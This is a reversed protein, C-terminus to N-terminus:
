SRQEAALRRARVGRLPRHSQDVLSSGEGTSFILPVTRDDTAYLLLGSEFSRGPLEARYRMWSAGAKLQHRGGGPQWSFTDRIEAFDGASLRGARGLPRRDAPDRRPLLVRRARGLEGPVRVDSSGLQGRLENLRDDGAVWTHALFLTWADRDWRWGHSADRVGGVDYNTQRYREWALKATGSASATFRHDLALLATTQEVPAAADAALDASRESLGSSAVRNDDLHELSAFYHTRDRTLPGGVSVGFQTRTFDADEVELAGRSRLADARYFGYVSGRLDNTGSRTVISIM